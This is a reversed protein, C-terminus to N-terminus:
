LEYVWSDLFRVGGGGLSRWDFFFFRFFFIRAVISTWAWLSNTSLCSLIMQVSPEESSCRTTPHNPPQATKKPSELFM